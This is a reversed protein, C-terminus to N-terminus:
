VVKLMAPIAQEIKTEVADLTDYDALDKGPDPTVIRLGYHDSLRRMMTREMMQGASDPDAWLIVNRYDKLRETQRASVKSGFTALVPITLGLATARIVSLPSEVVLVTDTYSNPFPKSHDYYFTDAKPFGSTSKYKPQPNATGPWHGPRDPVARSQWGVLKGEWFHPIIIRNDDERWGIRLKSVTDGDIGREELYPHIFAWPALVRDSYAPINAAYEARPFSAAVVADMAPGFEDSPVVAGALFPAILPLIEDFSNRNELKMILHFLDGGWYAYCNSSVVGEVVFSHDDAVELDYVMGAYPVEKWRAAVCEEGGEAVWQRSGGLWQERFSYTSKDNIERFDESCDDAWTISATPRSMGGFLTARPAHQALSMRAGFRTLIQWIQYVLKPNALLLRSQHTKSVSGDGRYLGRLLERQKDVPLTMAWSPLLKRDCGSGFQGVFFRSLGRSAVRVYLGGGHLLRKASLGFCGKLLIEIDDAYHSEQPNLCFQVGNQDASGESLYYGVLRMLDPTVDVWEAKFNNNPHVPGDQVRVCDVDEVTTLRGRVVVHNAIEEGRHWGVPGVPVHRCGKQPKGCRGCSFRPATLMKHDKTILFSRSGNPRYEIVDMDVNRSYTKTVPRYRGQHTLVQDGAVIDEIPKGGDITMVWAGPTICVYLKRDLNCAASPNQDGNNHHRDVRDLLCSHIVETEGRDTTEDHDNEVGYHELVARADLRGLYESYRSNAEMKALDLKM